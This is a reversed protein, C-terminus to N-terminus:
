YKFFKGLLTSSPTTVKVVYMGAPYGEVDLVIKDQATRTVLIMSGDSNSIEISKEGQALHGPVLTLQRTVPNPYLSLLSKQAESCGVASFYIHNSTDSVCGEMTVQTWFFGSIFPDIIYFQSTANPLMNGDKYWQNGFPASSNLTDGQLSIVPRPPVPNVEVFFPPSIGGVGCDNAAQVTINGSTATNEFNVQISNTGSGSAISCGQPLTWNYSVANSDPEVFYSIGTSGACVVPEGTIVGITDPLPNVAVPFFTSELTSCGLTDTYEVSIWQEGTQNWEVEVFSSDQSSVIIGGPSITWHYNEMGEDTSYVHIGSNPCVSDNGTIDPVPAYFIHVLVQSGAASCPQTPEVSITGQYTINDFIVTISNTGEGSIIQTGYPVTWTYYTATPIPSISYTYEMSVPCVELPGAIPGAPGVMCSDYKMVTAKNALFTECYAMYPVSDLPNFALSTYTSFSPDSPSGLDIWNTGDFKQLKAFGSSYAYYLQGQPSFALDPYYGSGFTNSSSGVSEWDSGNFRQVLSHYGNASDRYAVYPEGAPSITLSISGVSGLSFGPNGVPVWSVGNFMRVGIKGSLGHDNFAVYPVNGANCAISISEVAGYSFGAVGVSEWATASANLKKVVIKWGYGPDSYAYYIQGSPSIAMRCYNAGCAPYIYGGVTVWNTGDFKMVMGRGTPADTFAVHPENSPSMLLSVNFAEGPSIGPSGVYIWNTGDFKLVSVKMSNAFDRYAIFPVGSQDIAIDTCEVQGPSLGPSGVNMWTLNNTSLPSRGPQSFGILNVFVFVIILIGKM